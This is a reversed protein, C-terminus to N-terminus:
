KSMTKNHMKESTHVLNKMTKANYISYMIVSDELYFIKKRELNVKPKMADFAKQVTKLRKNHLYSSLEEYTLGIFGTVLM